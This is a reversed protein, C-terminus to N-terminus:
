EKLELFDLIGLLGAAGKGAGEERLGALMERAKATLDRLKHRTYEFSGTNELIRITYRKVAEDETKQRLINLLQLSGDSGSGGSSSSSSRISHVIPYSFKGETIDEGFGKNKAYQDSQLNQYDDRIQFIIGLLDVLPVCDEDVDSELQILKIALRFLGGTKNAVMDLYEEESPCTLSDRWYLDMGQGRHLRLLEETFIRLASECRRLKLVESQAQFYAYNASNITQPIGFISHAVPFGRRLKSYDEIDDILLSAVHLLGVVRKIIELQEDPIQFWENFASILKGRIDKGPLTTIYQVPASIIEEERSKHQRQTDAGNTVAAAIKGNLTVSHGNTLPLSPHHVNWRPPYHEQYPQPANLTDFMMTAPM